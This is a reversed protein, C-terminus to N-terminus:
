ARVAASSLFRLERAFFFCIGMSHLIVLFHFTTFAILTQLPFESLAIQSSVKWKLNKNKHM